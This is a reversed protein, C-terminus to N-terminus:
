YTERKRFRTKQRHYNSAMVGWLAEKQYREVAVQRNREEKQGKYIGCYSHCGVCRDSCNRCCNIRSAM